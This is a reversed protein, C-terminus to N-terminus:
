KRIIECKGDRLDHEVKKFKIDEKVEGSKYKVTIKQNRGIDKYPNPRLPIVQAHKSELNIRNKNQEIIYSQLDEENNFDIGSEQAGMMMSKAMGWNRPNNAKKAIRTKIQEISNALEKGNKIYQKEDLFHLFNEVVNGYNEFVESESTIKRPVINLCVEKINEPEWNEPTVYEYSRMLDMFTGIIFSSNEKQYDTQSQFFHSTSYEKIWEEQQTEILKELKEELKLVRSSLKDLAEMVQEDTDRRKGLQLDEFSFVYEFPEAGEKISEILYPDDLLDITQADLIVLCCEEKKYVEHVEGAWGNVIEGSELQTGEKIKIFNGRKFM